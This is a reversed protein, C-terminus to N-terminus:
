RDNYTDKMRKQLKTLDKILAPRDGARAKKSMKWDWKARAEVEQAYALLQEATFDQFDYDCFKPRSAIKKSKLVSKNCIAYAAKEYPKGKLTPRVKMICRCYADYASQTSKSVPSAPVGRTAGKTAVANFLPPPPPTKKKPAPKVKTVVANADKKKPSPKIKGIEYDKCQRQLTAYIGNPADPKIPRGTRPNHTKDQFWKLCEAKTFSM